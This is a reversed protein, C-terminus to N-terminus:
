RRTDSVPQYQIKMGPELQNVERLPYPAFGNPKAYLKFTAVPASGACNAQPQAAAPFASVQLAILLFLAVSRMSM